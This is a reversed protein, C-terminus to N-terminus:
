LSTLGLRKLQAYWTLDVGLRFPRQSRRKLHCEVREQAFRNMARFAVRPYGEGQAVDFPGFYNGWGALYRNVQGILEPVPVFCRTPGTMERLRDRARQLSKRSPFLNLYRGRGFLSQDYRFTYGLFDLSAGPENLKV